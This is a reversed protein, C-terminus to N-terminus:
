NEFLQKRIQKEQLSLHKAKWVAFRSMRAVIPLNGATEEKKHVESIPSGKWIM